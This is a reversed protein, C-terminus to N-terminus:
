RLAAALALADALPDRAPDLPLMKVVPRTVGAAVYRRLQEACADVDGHLVLDDVVRDPVAASAARRDGAEWAAWTDALLEGRGVFRHFRAYTPVSAYTAIVRRAAARVVGTDTSPCVFVRAAVEKGAGGAQEAVRLVTTVDQASLWNLVLGDGERAATEVMGAALAAVLIPPPTAPPRELRFGGRVTFTPFEEDIREGALARRLFRVTDRVRQIPRDFAAANWGETMAKSSTGVGLLFRGPALDALGAATMALMAPGRAYVSAIATGLTAGPVASGAVALPTFADFRATEASWLEAFGAGHLAQATRPLDALSEDFPVTVGWPVAGAM